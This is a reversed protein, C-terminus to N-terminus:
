AVTLLVDMFHRLLTSSAIHAINILARSIPRRCAGSFPRFLHLERKGVLKKLHTVGLKGTQYLGPHDGVLSIREIM